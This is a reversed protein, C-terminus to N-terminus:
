IREDNLAKLKEFCIEYEGLAKGLILGCIATAMKGAICFKEFLSHGLHNSNPTDLSTEKFLILFNTIYEKM